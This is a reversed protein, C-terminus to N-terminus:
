SKVVEGKLIYGRGIVTQILPEMTDKDIKRRLQYMHVEVINSGPDFNIDWIKDLIQTKTVVQNAHTLLFELLSFERNSLNVRVGARMVERTLLNLELDGVSLRYGAPGISRRQITRIRALMEDFDFPKRMYDMAGLDLAQIVQEPDSLASVVLVPTPNRAKRLNSLIEFGNMNPLMLDLIILEYGAGVTAELGKAGDTFHDCVHGAEALGDGLFQGLKVEDEIVLIKM